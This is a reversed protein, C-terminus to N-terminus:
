TSWLCECACTKFFTCKWKKGESYDVNKRLSHEKTGVKTTRYSKDTDRLKRPQIMSKNEVGFSYALERSALTEDFFKHKLM